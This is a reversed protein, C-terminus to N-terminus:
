NMVGKLQVYAMTTVYYSVDRQVFDEDTNYRAAVVYRGYVPGKDTTSIWNNRYGVTCSAGGFNAEITPTIKRYDKWGVNPARIKSNNTVEVDDFTNYTEDPNREWSTVINPYLPPASDATTVGVDVPM